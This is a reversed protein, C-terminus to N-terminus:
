SYKRKGFISDCLRKLGAYTLGATLLGGFTGVVLAMGDNFDNFGLRDTGQTKNVSMIPEECGKGGEDDSRESGCQPEGGIPLHDKGLRHEKGGVPRFDNNVRYFEAVDRSLPLDVFADARRNQAEVLPSGGGLVNLYAPLNQHRIGRRNIDLAIQDFRNLLYGAPYLKWELDFGVTREGLKTMKGLPRPGIAYPPDGIPVLVLGSAFGSKAEDYFFVTGTTRAPHACFFAFVLVGILDGVRLNAQRLGARTVVVAAEFADHRLTDIAAILGIPSRPELGFAEISFLEDHDAPGIGFAATM